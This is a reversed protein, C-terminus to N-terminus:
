HANNPDTVHARNFPLEHITYHKLPNVENHIHTAGAEKSSSFFCADELLLVFHFVVNNQRLDTYRSRLRYIPIDRKTKNDNLTGFVPPHVTFQCLSLPIGKYPLKSFCRSFLWRIQALVLYVSATDTYGEQNQQAKFIGEIGSKSTSHVQRKYM